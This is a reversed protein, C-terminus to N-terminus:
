LDFFIMSNDSGLPHVIFNFGLRSREELVAAAVQKDALPSVTWYTLGRQKLWAQVVVGEESPIASHYVDHIGVVTGRQALPLLVQCYWEAFEASHDSDLFLYEFHPAAQITEKADGQVFHWRGRALAKPVFRMSTDYLDYSWLQGSGNDRLASLIWTTSWGANPSIELVTKPRKDRLLLYTIEAELDDFAPFLMFRRLRLKRLRRVLANDHRRHFWREQWRVSALDKSYRRYLSTIYDTTIM